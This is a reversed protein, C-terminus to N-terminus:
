QVTLETEKKTNSKNTDTQNDTQNIPTLRFLLSLVGLILFYTVFGLYSFQRLFNCKFIKIFILM